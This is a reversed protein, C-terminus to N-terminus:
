VLKKFKTACEPCFSHSFKTNSHDSVYKELQQWNGDHDCIKKCQSCIPLFGELVKVESLSRRLDEVLQRQRDLLQRIKSLALGIAIFSLFRMMTNWATYFYSLQAHGSVVNVWFWVITCLISMVLSARQGIYWAAVAVPIFYFVTFSLDYGTIFDLLGIIIMSVSAVLGWLWTPMNM